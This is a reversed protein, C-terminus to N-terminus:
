LKKKRAASLTHTVKTQRLVAFTHIAYFVRVFYAQLAIKQKTQQLVCFMYVICCLRNSNGACICFLKFQLSCIFACMIMMSTSKAESQKKKKLKMSDCRYINIDIPKDYQTSHYATATPKLLSCSVDVCCCVYGVVYPM